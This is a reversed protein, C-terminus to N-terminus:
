SFVFLMCGYRRCFCCVDYEAWAKSDPILYGQFDSTKPNNGLFYFEATPPVVVYRYDDSIWTGPILSLVAHITNRDTEQKELTLKPKVPLKVKREWTFTPMFFKLETSSYQGKWASVV